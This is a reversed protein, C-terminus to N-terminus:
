MDKMCRRLIGRKLDMWWAVGLSIAFLRQHTNKVCDIKIWIKPKGRSVNHGETALTQTNEVEQEQNEDNEEVPLLHLLQHIPQIWVQAIGFSLCVYHHAISAQLLFWKGTSKCARSAASDSPNNIMKILSCASRSAPIRQSSGHWWRPSFGSGNQCKQM